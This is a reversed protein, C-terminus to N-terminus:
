QSESLSRTYSGSLPIDPGLFTIKARGASLLESVSTRQTGESQQPGGSLKSLKANFILRAHIFLAPRHHCASM